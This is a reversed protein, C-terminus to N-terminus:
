FSSLSHLLTLLINQILYPLSAIIGLSAIVSSFDVNFIFYQCHASRHTLHLYSDLCDHICESRLLCICQM